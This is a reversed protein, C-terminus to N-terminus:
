RYRHQQIYRNVFTLYFRTFYNLQLKLGAFATFHDKLEVLVRQGNEFYIQDDVKTEVRRLLKWDKSDAPPLILFSFLVFFAAAPLM